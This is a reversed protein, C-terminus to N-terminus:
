KCQVILEVEDTISGSISATVDFKYKGQDSRQETLMTINAQTVSIDATFRKQFNPLVSTTGVLNKAIVDQAGGTINAFKILDITGDLTYRWVFTINQGELVKWQDPPKSIFQTVASDLFLLLFCHTPLLM